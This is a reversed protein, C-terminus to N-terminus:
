AAGGDREQKADIIAKFKAETDPDWFYKPYAKIFLIIFFVPFLWYGYVMWATPIPLLLFRAETNGKMYDSYTWVMATWILVYIIGGILIPKGIPGVVDNRRAGFALTTVFLVAIITGFLWGLWLIHGHRAEGPGGQLMTDYEPHATGHGDHAVTIAQTDANMLEYAPQEEITFVMLLVFCMGLCCLYMLWQLRM